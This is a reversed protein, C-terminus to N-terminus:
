DIQVDKRGRECEIIDDINYNFNECTRDLIEFRAPESCGMKSITYLRTEIGKIFRM